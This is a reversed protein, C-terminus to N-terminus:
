YEAKIGMLSLNYTPMTEAQAEPKLPDTDNFLENELVEFNGWSTIM